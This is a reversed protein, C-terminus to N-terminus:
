LRWGRVDSLRRIAAVEPLGSGEMPPIFCESGLAYILKTFRLKTGDDLLAQGADRIWARWGNEQLMQRVQIERM